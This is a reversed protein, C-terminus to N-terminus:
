DAYLPGVDMYIKYEAIRAGDMEFFDAFPLAIESGDHRTYTVEGECVLTDAERMASDIRHSLGAISEFFGAVAAAIAERGKAPPAAGFRFHADETLFETFAGTDQRDIAAFLGRLLSQDANSLM